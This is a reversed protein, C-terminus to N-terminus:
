ALDKLEKYGSILRTLQIFQEGNLFVEHMEAMDDVTGGRRLFDSLYQFSVKAEHGVHHFGLYKRSEPDILAKIFGNMGQGYFHLLLTTTRGCMPLCTVPYGPQYEEPKIGEIRPSLPAKLVIVKKYKKRAEEETLGVSTAELPACYAHNPVFECPVKAEIGQINKAATMGRKRAIAMLFPPGAVDGVAYVGPLSTQCKENTIIENNEGIKLGLPEAVESNPTLGISLMVADCAFERIKGDIEAVVSKVKGKGKIEKVDAGEYIEMGFKRQNRIVVERVEHDWEGLVKYKELVTVKTGFAQFMAGKGIGIHGGGIVVLKKPDEKLEPHDKYTMVGPLNTGPIDPITPRSGSSIVLTKGKYVKGNVEVTNKDIIKGDGWAVELGLQKLSQHEMLEAFAPRGVERFTKCAKAMSINSLDIKPYWGLGSCLRMMVAMSAQENLCNEFVCRCRHCEGGLSHKEVILSRGGLAKTYAAGFRGSAGGGFWISDYMENAM